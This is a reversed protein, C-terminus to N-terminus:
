RSLLLRQNKELARFLTEIDDDNNYFHPSIRLNGGRCSTVIDDAALAEVLGGEDNSKL